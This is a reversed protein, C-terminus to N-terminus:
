IRCRSRVLGSRCGQLGDSGDANAAQESGLVNRYFETAVEIDNVVVNIHSIAQVDRRPTFNTMIERWLRRTLAAQTEATSAGKGSASQTVSHRRLTSVRGFRAHTKPCLALAHLM